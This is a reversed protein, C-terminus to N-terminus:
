GKLNLALAAIEDPTGANIALADPANKKALGTLVKGAGIEVFVKVGNAAMYAVCERWRVTGTVQEVLKQRMEAEEKRFLVGHPFLIACRGTKPDLYGVSDNVIDSFWINGAKDKLLEHNAGASLDHIGVGKGATTKM